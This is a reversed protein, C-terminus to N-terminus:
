IASIFRIAKEEPDEYFKANDIPTDIKRVSKKINLITGPFIRGKVIIFPERELKLREEIGM